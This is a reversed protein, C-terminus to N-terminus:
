NLKEFVLTANTGGFGFSNSMTCNLEKDKEIKTVIPFNKAKEDMNEINASASIFKNKMMLLCYVAEQASVAGLSHGTLSKTSSIKPINEKFAGRIAELEKIDGAPTSTGHSNIYDVKNRATKLAMKMCREAGEGSPQVMDYGDSTAGYGTLEAYIKAGRAKAHEYEELVLTAAGGAIIFGDRNTDYPRSAKEPTNNYKSSLAPMADFMGSLAWDLEEGGGAFIIDQKGCQILEMGNGICHGSTACASSISYNVGKIKFPVALTASCTSAMTRPVIYPGMRKPASKRITDVAFYVNKISPGGSGIIIGTQENSIEKEELGSEEIAEKLAIYSYASGDGMFRRIKRDIHKEIDLNKVAGVVQSRFNYKKHEESFVIGSKTNLLSDLVETKNNGICSVIGIGTVVVRRM